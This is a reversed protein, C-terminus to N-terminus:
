RDNVEWEVQLGKPTPTIFSPSFRVTQEPVRLGPLRDFLANFAIKTELRALPAGICFHRGGSFGAHEHFNKRGLVFKEPDTFKEADRNGSAGMWYIVSGAPIKVGSLETDKLTVRNLGRVVGVHRVTEEIVQDIRERDDRVVEWLGETHLSRVIQTILIATTDTGTVIFAMVNAIIESDTIPKTGDDPTVRILDSILDDEPKDRRQQVLQEIDKYWDILGGWQRRADEESMEPSSMLNLFYDTWVRFSDAKEREFGLAVSITQMAMKNSFETVLDASGRDVIEDILKHAIEEIQPAFQAVRPRSFAAQMLRRLRLHSEGDQNAMSDGIGPFPCGPPIEMGEPLPVRMHNAGSNSYTKQDAHITKIDAYKTVCYMELKPMWFVPQEERARKLIPWPDCADDTALPDFDPFEPRDLVASADSINNNTSM